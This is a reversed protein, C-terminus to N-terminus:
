MIAMRCIGAFTVAKKRVMESFLYAKRSITLMRSRKSPVNMSRAGISRMQVGIKMGTIRLSPMSGTCKPMIMIRLRPMPRMVGGTPGVSKTPQAMPLTVM